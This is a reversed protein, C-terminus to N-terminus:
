KARCPIGAVHPKPTTYRPRCSASSANSIADSSGVSRVYTRAASRNTLPFARSQRAGRGRVRPSVAAPGLFALHAGNPPTRRRVDAHERAARPQQFVNRKQQAVYTNLMAAAERENRPMLHGYRDAHNDHERAAHVLEPGKRERRGRDHVGIRTAASTCRSRSFARTTAHREHAHQPRAPIPPGAPAAESSSDEEGGGSAFRHSGLERRILASLPLNRRGSRGKPTVPGAVSDRSREVRIVGRFDVPRYSATVSHGHCPSDADRRGRDVGM